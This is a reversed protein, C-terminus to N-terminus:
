LVGAKGAAVELNNAAMLREFSGADDNLLVELATRIADALPPTNDEPTETPSPTTETTEAM